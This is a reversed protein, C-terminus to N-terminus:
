AEVRVAVERADAVEASTADEIQPHSRELQRAMAVLRELDRIGFAAVHPSAVCIVALTNEGRRVPVALKSRTTSGAEPEDATDAADAVVDAM